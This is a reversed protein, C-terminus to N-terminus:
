AEASREGVGLAFVLARDVLAMVESPLEALFPGVEAKELTFVNHLNVACVKPLGVEPGLRVESAVGRVTSSIAAVTVTGLHSILDSRTLVLVPRRKDPSPFRYWRVEGRKM